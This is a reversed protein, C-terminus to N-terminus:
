KGLEKFNAYNELWELGDGPWFRCLRGNGAAGLARLLEERRTEPSGSILYAARPMGGAVSLLRVARGQRLAVLADGAGALRGLREFVFHEEPVIGMLGDGALALGADALLRCLGAPMGYCVLLGGGCASVDFVHSAENIRGGFPFAAKVAAWAAAGAPRRGLDRGAMVRVLIKASGAVIVLKRGAFGQGLGASIQAALECGAGPSGLRVGDGTEPGGPSLLSARDESVRLLLEKM